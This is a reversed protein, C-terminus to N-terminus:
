KKKSARKARAQAQAELRDTAKSMPASPEGVGQKWHKLVAKSEAILIKVNGKNVIGMVKVHHVVEGTDTNTEDWEMYVTLGHNNSERFTIDPSLGLGLIKSATLVIEAEYSKTPSFTYIGGELPYKVKSFGSTGNTNTVAFADPLKTVDPNAM